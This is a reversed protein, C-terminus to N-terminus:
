YILLSGCNQRLNELIYIKGLEEASYYVNFYSFIGTDKRFDYDFDKELEKILIRRKSDYSEIINKPKENTKDMLETFEADCPKRGYSMTDKVVFSTIAEM